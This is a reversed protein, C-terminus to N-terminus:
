KIDTSTGIIFTASNLTEMNETEKITKVPMM